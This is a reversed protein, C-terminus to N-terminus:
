RAGLKVGHRPNSARAAASSRDGCSPALQQQRGLKWAVGNSDRANSKLSSLCDVHLRQWLLLLGRALAAMAAAPQALALCRGSGPRSTSNFALLTLAQERGIRYSTPKRLGVSPEKSPFPNGYELTGRQRLLRKNHTAAITQMVCCCLAGWRVRERAALLSACCHM